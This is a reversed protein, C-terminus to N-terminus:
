DKNELSRWLFWSAVSCYPRWRKSDALAEIEGANPLVDYGYHKEIARRIGLDGVPLIDLRGLSFILFMHATWVGIGKVQTLMEIIEQDSLHSWRSFRITGDEAKAALDKIYSTKQNSLGVGRMKEHPTKLIQGATPFRDPSYLAVFRSLITEAARTSLQQSIIAGVLTEFYRTHPRLRCPGHRKIIECLKQDRQSLTREAKRLEEVFAATRNLAREMPILIKDQANAQLRIM